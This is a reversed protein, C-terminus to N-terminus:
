WTWFLSLPFLIIENCLTKKEFCYDTWLSYVNVNNLLVSIEQDWKSGNSGELNVKFCVLTRYFEEKNSYALLFM